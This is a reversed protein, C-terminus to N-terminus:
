KQNRGFGLKRAEREVGKNLFFMFRAKAMELNADFARKTHFIGKVGKSGKGGSATGAETLHAYLAPNINGTKTKRGKPAPFWKNAAGIVAVANAGYRKVVTIINKGLTGSSHAGAKVNAQIAQRIPTASARVAAVTVKDAIEFPLRKFVTHLQEFGAMDFVAQKRAM